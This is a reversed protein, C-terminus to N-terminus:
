RRLDKVSRQHDAKRWLVDIEAGALIILASLYFWMLIVVVTAASGYIADYRSFNAVYVGLLFTALSWGITAAAAGPTLWQRQGEPAGAPAYRYLASIAAGALTAAGIWTAVKILFAMPESIGAVFSELYGLIVVAALAGVAVLLASLVIGLSVFTASLFSRSGPVDHIVDIAKTLARAGRVGAYLALMLSITVGWGKREQTDSVLKMVIEGIGRGAETSVTGTLARIHKVATAPESILGYGLVVLLVLPVFALFAYFALGAAMFTLDHSKIRSGIRRGASLWEAPRAASQQFRKQWRLGQPKM